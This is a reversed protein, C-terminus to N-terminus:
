FRTLSIECRKGLLNLFIPQLNLHLITCNNTAQRKQSGTLIPINGTIAFIDSLIHTPHNCSGRVLQGTLNGVTSPSEGNWTIEDFSMSGCFHVTHECHTCTAELDLDSVTISSAFGLFVILLVASTSMM